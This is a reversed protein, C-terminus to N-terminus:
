KPELEADDRISRFRIRAPTWVVIAKRLREGSTDALKVIAAPLDGRSEEPCRILLLGKQQIPEAAMALRGFDKDETLLVRQERHSRSFIERDPAGQSDEVAATVDHGATRLAKVVNFDCSEDALFRM